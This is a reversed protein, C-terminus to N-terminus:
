PGLGLCFMEVLTEVSARSHTQGGQGGPVSPDRAQRIDRDITPEGFYQYPRGERAAMQRAYDKLRYAQTLVFRKVDRRHVGHTDLFSVM